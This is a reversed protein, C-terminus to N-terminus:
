WPLFYKEVRRSVPRSYRVKKEIIILLLLGLIKDYPMDCFFKYLETFWLQLEISDFTNIVHYAKFEFILSSIM